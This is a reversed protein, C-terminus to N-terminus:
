WSLIQLLKYTSTKGAKIQIVSKPLGLQESLFNIIEKNAKGDTPEAAISLKLYEKQDITIVGDISNRKAGARIKLLLKTQQKTKIHRFIEESRNM